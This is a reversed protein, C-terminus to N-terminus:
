VTSSIAATDPTGGALTRAPSIAGEGQQFPVEGPRDPGTRTPGLSRAVLVAQELPIAGELLFTTQADTWLLYLVERAQESGPPQVRTLAYRATVEDSVRVEGSRVLTTGPPLAGPPSGPLVLLPPQVAQAQALRLDTTGTRRHLYGAVLVPGRSTDHVQLLPEPAFGKPLYTPLRATLGTEPATLPPPLPLSPNITDEGQLRIRLPATIRALGLRGAVERLPGSAVVMTSSAVLLAAAAVCAIKLARLVRQWRTPRPPLHRLTHALREDFGPPPEVSELYEKVAQRILRDLEDEPPEKPHRVREGM